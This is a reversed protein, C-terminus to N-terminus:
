ECVAKEVHGLTESFKVRCTTLGKPIKQIMRVKSNMYACVIYADHGVPIKFTADNVAEMAAAGKKVPAAPAAEDSFLPANDKPHGDFLQLGTFIHRANVDDVQTVWGKPVAVATQRTKIEEPCEAEFAAAHVSKLFSFVSILVLIYKSVM